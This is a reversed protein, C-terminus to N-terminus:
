IYFVEVGSFSVDGTLILTNTIVSDIRNKEEVAGFYAGVKNEIKWTRPIYMQLGAFSVDINVVASERAMTTNDFYIKMNGFSCSLNAYEFKDTNVYKISSGFSTELNIHGEDDVNITKTNDSDGNVYIKSKKPGKNFILSLGISGLLAAFLVPWPTIETIGLKDDYIIALFALPFLIGTFSIRMISKIIMAVLAISFLLSFVNVDSFYGLKSILLVIAGLILFVGWFVREKRM